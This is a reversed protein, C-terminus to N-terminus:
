FRRNIAEVFQDAAEPKQLFFLSPEILELESVLWEGTDAQILDLRAYLPKDSLCALAQEMMRCEQASPSSGLEVSEDQGAFRPKKVVVHSPEGDIAMISREGVTHVSPLFPQVMAGRGKTLLVLFEAAEGDGPEFVRTNWSGASITPKIILRDTHSSLDVTGGQPVYVTPVIPLGAAELDRLYTKEMNWRVTDPCNLVRAQREASGLWLRFKDPEYHYNWCSRLVLLDFEAPDFNSGDWPTFSATLGARGAAELLLGADPDPEPLVACSVFGVRM